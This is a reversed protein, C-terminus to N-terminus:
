SIFFRTLELKNRTFIVLSLTTDEMALKCSVKLKDIVITIYYDVRIMYNVIGTVTTCLEIRLIRYICM